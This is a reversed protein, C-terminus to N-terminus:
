RLDRWWDHRSSAVGRPQGSLGFGGVTSWRGHVMAWCMWCKNLSNLYYIYINYIYIYVHVYSIAIHICTYIYAAWNPRRGLQTSVMYIYVSAVSHVM